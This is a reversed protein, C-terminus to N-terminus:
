RQAVVQRQESLYHLQTVYHAPRERFRELQEQTAFMWIRDQYMLAKSLEGSQLVSQDVASVPCFGDIAPWFREPDNLFAARHRPSAFTIAYGRYNLRVRSDGKAFKKDTVPSVPCYGGFVSPKAAAATVPPEEHACLAALEHSLQKATRFGTIKSVIKMEPSVIITTPYSKVGMSKVIQRDADGDLQVPVFCTSIHDVVSQDRFTERAMKKCYGCWSTSVKVLMPKGAAAAEAAATDLNKRWSLTDASAHLALLALM